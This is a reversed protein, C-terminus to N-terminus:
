DPKREKECAEEFSEYRKEIWIVEEKPTQEQLQKDTEEPMSKSRPISPTKKIDVLFKDAIMFHSKFLAYQVQDEEAFKVINLPSKFHAFRETQPITRPNKSNTTFNQDASLQLSPNVDEAPKVSFDPVIIEDFKPPLLHQILNVDPTTYELIINVNDRQNAANIIDIIENRFFKWVFEGEEKKTVKNLIDEAQSGYRRVNINQNKHLAQRMLCIITRLDNNYCRYNEKTFPGAAEFNGEKQLAEAIINRCLKKTPSEGRDKIIEWIANAKNLAAQINGLSLLNEAINLQQLFASTNAEIFL